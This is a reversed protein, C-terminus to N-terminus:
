GTHPKPSHTRNQAHSGNQRKRIESGANVWNFVMDSQLGEWFLLTNFLNYYHNYNPRGDFSLTHCHEFFMCFEVLLKHFLNAHILDNLHAGMICLHSTFDMVLQGATVVSTLTVVVPALRNGCKAWGLWDHIHGVGAILGVELQTAAVSSWDSQCCNFSLSLYAENLHIYWQRGAQCLGYLGKWLRWYPSKCGEPVIM